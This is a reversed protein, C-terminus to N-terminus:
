KRIQTFALLKWNSRCTRTLVSYNGPGLIRWARGFLSVRAEKPRDDNITRDRGQSEEATLTRYDDVIMFAEIEKQIPM